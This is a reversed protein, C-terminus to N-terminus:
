MAACISLQSLDAPEPLLRVRKGRSGQTWPGRGHMDRDSFGKDRLYNRLNDWGPPSYGIGFRRVTKASLGREAAYQRASDGEEALLQSHFYRAAERNMELIRVRQRAAPEGGQEEPVHLGAREALFRIAEVYDLSEIERIFTIVDGGKGCGFCYFSQNATYVTFSPTKESHFPCLGSLNLGGAEAHCLLRDGARLGFRIEAGRHLKGTDHCRWKLFKLAAASLLAKIKAHPDIIDTISMDHNLAQIFYAIYKSMDVEFVM